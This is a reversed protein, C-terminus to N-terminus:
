SMILLSEWWVIHICTYLTVGAYKNSSGDVSSNEMFKCCILLDGVLCHGNLGYGGTLMVNSCIFKGTLHAKLVCGM